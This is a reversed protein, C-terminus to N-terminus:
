LVLDESIQARLLAAEHGVLCACDHLLNANQSVESDLPNSSFLAVNQQQAGIM